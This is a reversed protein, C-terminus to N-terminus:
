AHFHANAFGAPMRSRAQECLSACLDVVYIAKFAELPLYELMMEVNAQTFVVASHVTHLEIQWLSTFFVRLPVISGACVWIHGACIIRQMRLMLGPGPLMVRGYDAGAVGHKARADRPRTSIILWLTSIGM